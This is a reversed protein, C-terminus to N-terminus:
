AALSHAAAVLADVQRPNTDLPFPSGTSAVFGRARAGIAAQRRVETSMEEPTAHLGFHVADINGMVTVRDGVRDVVEEIEIRFNKKSEEVAIAAIDYRAMQELRPLADGCVLHVPLLGLGRMHKFYPINYDRVFEDYSRPSIMDAGTFVEQVYIGHLGVQVLAALLRESQELQRQLLAHLLAPRDHITTMLGFFGLYDSVESFPTDLVYSIFYRNGYDDVLRRLLDLEGSELWEATSRIPIIREVDDRDNIEASQDLIDIEARKAESLGNDGGSLRARQMAVRKGSVRDQFYLQGDQEVALMREVWARSAGRDAEIWDPRHKFVGYSQYTARLRFFTDEAHELPYRDAGCQRLLTRYQEIYLARECDELFLSPYAPAAPVVDPRHGTLAKIMREKPAMSQPSSEQLDM